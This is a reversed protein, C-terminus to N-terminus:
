KRHLMKSQVMRNFETVIKSVGNRRRSPGAQGEEPAQVWEEDDRETEQDLIDLITHIERNAPEKVQLLV